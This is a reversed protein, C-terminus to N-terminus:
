KKPRKENESMDLINIVLAVFTVASPFVLIPSTVPFKILTIGFVCGIWFVVMVVLLNRM